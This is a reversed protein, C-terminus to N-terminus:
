LTISRAVGADFKLLNSSINNPFTSTDGDFAWFCDGSWTPYGQAQNMEEDVPVPVGPVMSEAGAFSLLSAFAAIAFGKKCM